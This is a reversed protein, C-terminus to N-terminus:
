IHILSLAEGLCDCNEQIVDSETENDGDDCNAGIQASPANCFQGIDGQYPLKPNGTVRFFSFNTNCLPEYDVPFCGAFDNNNLRVQILESDSLDLEPLPGSLNNNSLNLISLSSNIFLLEPLSGSLNNNSLNLEPVCSINEPLSGSLRNNSLNVVFISNSTCIDESLEGSLENGSLDLEFLFESSWLSSPITDVLLNNSARFIQVNSPYVQPLKTFNNRSLVLYTLRDLEGWDQLIEGSYDNSSLSLSELRNLNHIASDINGSLSNNDLFLVRLQDLQFLEEPIEGTLNNGEGTFEDGLRIESVRNGACTVGYWPAGNYNCPDCSTGQAGQLWGENNTWNEGQTSQYLAILAEYDPHDSSECTSQNSQGVCICDENISDDFTSPDEDDCPAGIQADPSVCFGSAAGSWPLQPNNDIFLFDCFVSLEEPICGDLNNGSLDLIALETLAGLSSPIEGHLQNDALRLNVM